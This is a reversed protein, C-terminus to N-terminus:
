EVSLSSLAKARTVGIVGVLAQVRGALKEYRPSLANEKGDPTYFPALANLARKHEVYATDGIATRLKAGLDSYLSGSQLSLLPYFDGDEKPYLLGYQLTSGLARTDLGLLDLASLLEEVVAYAESSKAKVEARLRDKTMPPGATKIPRPTSSTGGGATKSQDIVEATVGESAGQINVMVVHRSVEKTQIVTRPVIALRGEGAAYFQLDVLGFKYPASGGSDNLWQTMREVSGHFGDSVILYLMEGTRLYTELKDEFYDVLNTLRNQRVLEEVRSLITEGQKLKSEHNAKPVKVDLVARRLCTEFDPVTMGTIAIGYLLIQSVVERFAERNERLKTEVIVLHADNTVFVNDIYGTRGGLDVPIEMGLSAISTVNPYFDRVPLLQPARDIPYQLYVKEKDRVEGDSVQRAKLVEIQPADGEIDTVLAPLGRAM